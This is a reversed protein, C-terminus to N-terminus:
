IFTVKLWNILLKGWQSIHRCIENNENALGLGHNGKPFIHLEAPIDNKKLAKAYDLSNIVSVESDAFTHWMFCCPTKESVLYEPTLDDALELAKDGLLNKCSWIHAGSKKSSLKIVPYCLIQANPIFDENDIEDKADIAISDFYTSALAALHGGASSGMVAIKKKNIGYVNAYHRVFQIARRADLLPLPFQHPIVRYDCVFAAIGNENLFKAYDEGEHASRGTYGGGPLIVVAMDYLKKEPLFATITPVEECLGPVNMWLNHKINKVDNTVM